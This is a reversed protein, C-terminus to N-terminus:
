AFRNCRGLSQSIRLILDNIQHGLIISFQSNISKQNFNQILWDSLLIKTAKRQNTSKKLCDFNNRISTIILQQLVTHFIPFTILNM